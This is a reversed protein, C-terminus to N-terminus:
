GWSVRAANRSSAMRHNRWERRTSAYQQMGTVLDPGFRALDLASLTVLSCAQSATVRALHVLPQQLSGQQVQNPDLRCSLALRGINVKQWVVGQSQQQMNGSRDEEGVMSLQQSGAHPGPSGDSAHLSLSEKSVSPKYRYSTMVVLLCRKAQVAHLCRKRTRPYERTGNDFSAKCYSFLVLKVLVCAVSDATALCRSDEEVTPLGCVEDGFSDGPGLLALQTANSLSSSRSFSRRFSSPRALNTLPSGTRSMNDGGDLAATLLVEGAHLLVIAQLNQYDPASSILPLTCLYGM